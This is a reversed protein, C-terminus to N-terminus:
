APSFTGNVWQMSGGITETTACIANIFNEAGTDLPFNSITTCGTVFAFLAPSSSTDSTQTWYLNPPNDDNSGGTSLLNNNFVSPLIFGSGYKNNYLYNNSLNQVFQPWPMINNPIYENTLGVNQTYLKPVIYDYYGNQDQLIASIAALGTGNYNSCSHSIAIPIICEFPGGSAQFTSKSDSKMYNCLNLFDAGSSGSVDVWTEIDFMVSNYSNNLTGTGTGYLTNGSLDSGDLYETYSFALGAQTVAEYISFIAGSSGTSWGGNSSSGGFTIGLLYPNGTGSLYTSAKSYTNTGTTYNMSSDLASTANSYGSYLWVANIGVGSPVGDAYTFTSYGAVLNSAAYAKNIQPSKVSNAYYQTIPTTSNNVFNGAWYMYGNITGGSWAVGSAGSATSTEGEFLVTPTPDNSVALSSDRTNTLSKSTTTNLSLKSTTSKLAIKQALTTTEVILKNITNIDTPTNVYNEVIATATASATADIGDLTKLALKTKVFVTPM